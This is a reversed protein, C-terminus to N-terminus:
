HQIIVRKSFQGENTKIMLVYNGAPIGELNVSEKCPLSRTLKGNLNLLQLSQIEESSVINLEKSAPNPYVRPQLNIKREAIQGPVQEQFSFRYVRGNSPHDMLSSRDDTNIVTPNSASDTLQHVEYVESNTNTDLPSLLNAYWIGISFPDVNENLNNPGFRIEIDQTEQYMWVQFNAYISDPAGAFGVNSYQIKYIGTGPTGAISLGIHSGSDKSQMNMQNVLIFFATSDDLEFASVTGAGTVILPTMTSFEFRKDFLRIWDGTLALGLHSTSDFTTRIVFEPNIQDYNQQDLEFKYSQAIAQAM